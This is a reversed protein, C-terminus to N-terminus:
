IRGRLIWGSDVQMVSPDVLKLPEHIPRGTVFLGPAAQGGILTAATFLIVEDVLGGNLFADIVTAGGEVLLSHIGFHHLSRTLSVLDIHGHADLPQSWRNVHPPLAETGGTGESTVWIVPYLETAALFFPNDSSIRARGDLVIRWLTKGPWPTTRLNLGPQDGLLTGSGVLVASFEGRFDNALRRLPESTVWASRQESDGMKGDASVGAKIVIHPRNKRVATLYHRNAWAAEEELCGVEVIVGAQRLREFGLGNVRPGPDPCAAVLRQIKKELIIDVCPPTKGFHACPELTVYLTCGSPIEDRNLAEREAHFAGFRSHYGTSIIQGDKVVVAGVVPNPATYGMGELSLRIALRMFREDETSYPM